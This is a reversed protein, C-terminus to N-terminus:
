EKKKEIYDKLADKTNQFGIEEWPIEPLAFWGAALNEHNIKLQGSLYGARYVVLVVPNGSCSYAGILNNVEVRIGCEEEMERVAAAQLKEGRDVFGGPLVWTGQRPPHARKVLLLRQEIELIACAVLKPDKYHVFGCGSCSFHISGRRERDRTEAELGCLPCFRYEKENIGM